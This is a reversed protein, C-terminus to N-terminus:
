YYYDIGLIIMSDCASLLQYLLDYLLNSFCHLYALLPDSQVSLQIFPNAELLSLQFYLFLCLLKVIHYGKKSGNVTNCPMKLVLEQGQPIRVPFSSM